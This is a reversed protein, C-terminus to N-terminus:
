VKQRSLAPVELSVELYLDHLEDFHCVGNVFKTVAAALSKALRDNVLRALFIADQVIKNQDTESM